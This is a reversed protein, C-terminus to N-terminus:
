LPVTVFEAIAPPTYGAADEQLEVIMEALKVHRGAKELKILGAELASGRLVILRYRGMFFYTKRKSTEFKRSYVTGAWRGKVTALVAGREGEYRVRDLMAGQLCFDGLFHLWSEPDGDFLLSSMRNASTVYFPMGAPQKALMSCLIDYAANVSEKSEPDLSFPQGNPLTGFIRNQLFWVCGRMKRLTAIDVFRVEADQFSKAPDVMTLPLCFLDPYHEAAQVLETGTFVDYVNGGHMRSQMNLRYVTQADKSNTEALFARYAEHILMWINEAFEQSATNELLGQRDLAFEFGRPTKSNAFFVGVRLLDFCLSPIPIPVSFGCVATSQSRFGGLVQMLSVDKEALFTARGNVLRYAFGITLETEARSGRWQFVQISLDDKADIRSGFIDTDSVSPITTPLRIEEGDLEITLPVESCLLQARFESYVDDLLVGRKLSLTVSTGCARQLNSFITYDKLEDLAVDFAVGTAKAASQPNGRHGEFAATEVRALNAVTFVSWFGIGFRAIPAYDETSYASEKARSNGVTLFHNLVSRESMGCGNDSVCITNSARDFSVVVRPAYRDAAGSHYERFRCAEVANQVLERIAIGQHSRWVANSAILDIVSRKNLRVGLREFRGGRFDFNRIFPETGVKLRRIQSRRDLDAYGRIWEEMQDLTQHTLALVTSESFSGSVIICGDERVALSDGICVHKMNERFSIQAGESQDSKLRELVGDIVRTDSFEIADATCVLTALQLVDLEREQAAFPAGLERELESISMNHARMMLDLAAVLNPPVGLTEAERHIYDGGRRSHERRLYSQLDSTTEWGPSSNLGLERLLEPAESPFVTMGLDHAYAAAILLFLAAPDLSERCKAELCAPLIVQEIRRVVRFGHHADHRTYYPFHQVTTAMLPAIGRVFTTIRQALEEDQEKLYIYLQTEHLEIIPDRVRM